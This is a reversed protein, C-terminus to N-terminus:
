APAPRGAAGSRRLPTAGELTLRGRRLSLSNTVVLASSFGMAIAGLLPLLQFLGLGFLPVLGGAAIPLLVANYGIAWLLNQRVKAVTRRALALTLPIGRLDAGVLVVRGAEKAVDLGAGVAIGLDAAALAPADNIGDGAFAVVHGEAQLARIRALKDAPTCGARYGGSAVRRAVAAVAPESDGSLIETPIGARSLEAVSDSAGPALADEFAIAGVLEPGRRLVSVTLGAREWREPEEGVSGTPRDAPGATPRGFMVPVGGDLGRVGSGPEVSVQGIQRPAVDREAAIARIAVALPHGSGQELGAALALLEPETHGPAAWLGAVRPRGETLTGTKDYLVVDVRGANEIADRGKFLVGARAARGVGVVIAAPTAIGFACPCATIAVSVFVLVAVGLPVHGLLGWALAALLALALVGPAFVSAIRDALRRLPVQSLEADTLLRGVEALFTEEGTGTAEVELPGDLNRAGALVPDGPSRLVPRSEGTLLSQDTSSRGALVTGDAPFREGPRVRVRDHPRLETAPVDEERGDVLRHAQPPLLEQLRALANSARSRVRQELWAGTRLLVLILASADFYLAPPLRDPLLLAAWSYAWAATTAVAVLLDMNGIRGRLADWAGRYFPAGLYLQVATSAGAELFLFGPPHWLYVLAVTFLALPWGVGLQQRTRALERGPAAFQQLCSSSCFFYSRGDRLLTLDCGEPDVAMGCIPDTAM